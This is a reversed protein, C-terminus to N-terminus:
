FCLLTVIAIIIIISFSCVGKEINPKWKKAWEQLQQAYAKELRGREHLCNIMDSCLRHGDDVRRVTHKYNGM